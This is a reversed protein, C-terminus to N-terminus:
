TNKKIKERGIKILYLGVLLMFIGLYSLTNNGANMLAISSLAVITGIIMLM